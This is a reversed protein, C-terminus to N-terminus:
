VPSLTLPHAPRETVGKRLICLYKEYSLNVRGSSYFQKSIAVNLMKLRQIWPKLTFLVMTYNKSSSFHEMKDLAIRTLCYINLLQLCMALIQSQLWTRHFIIIETNWFGVSIVRFFAYLWLTRSKQFHFSM